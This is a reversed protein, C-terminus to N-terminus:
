TREFHTGPKRFQTGPKELPTGPKRLTTCPKKSTTGQNRFLYGTEWFPSFEKIKGSLALHYIRKSELCFVITKKKNLAMELNLNWM